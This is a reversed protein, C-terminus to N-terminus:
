NATRLELKLTIWIHWELIVHSQNKGMYMLAISSQPSQNVTSYVLARDKAKITVWM